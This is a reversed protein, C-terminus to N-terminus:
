DTSGELLPEEPRVDDFTTGVLGLVVHKLFKDELLGRSPFHVWKQEARQELGEFTAAAGLNSVGPSEPAIEIRLVVRGRVIDRADPSPLSAYHGLQTKAVIGRAFVIPESTLVVRGREDGEAESTVPIHNIELLRKVEELVAERSAQIRTPNPLPKGTIRKDWELQASIQMSFLLLLVAAIVLRQAVM